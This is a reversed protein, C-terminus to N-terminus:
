TPSSAPRSSAWEPTYALRLAAFQEFGSGHKEVYDADYLKETVVRADVGPAARPRHRPKIPLYHKAKSPRLGLDRTSSSLARAAASLPPSSRCRRTTCTRASTRASSSSATPRERHRHTRPAGPPHRRLHTSALRAPAAASPSRHPPWTSRATPRQAHAQHVHWRDTHSPRWPNWARTPPTKKMKRGAIYISHRTGLSKRGNKRAASTQTRILPARLRDPDAHAGIGGTGRPCLRASRVPSRRSQGRDELSATACAPSPVANWFCLDCFTPVTRTGSEQKAEAGTGAIVRGAEGLAGAAAM